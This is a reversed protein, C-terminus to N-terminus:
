IFQLATEVRSDHEIECRRLFLFYINGVKPNRGFRGKNDEKNIRSCLWCTVSFCPTEYLFITSLIEKSRKEVHSEGAVILTKYQAIYLAPSSSQSFQM